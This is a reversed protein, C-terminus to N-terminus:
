NPRVKACAAGNKIGTDGAPEGKRKNLTSRGRRGGREGPEAEERPRDHGLVPALSASLRPEGDIGMAYVDRCLNHFVQKALGQLIMLLAKEIPRRPGVLLNEGGVGRVGIRQM